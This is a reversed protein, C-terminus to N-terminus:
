PQAEWTSNGPKHAEKVRVGQWHRGHRNDKGQRMGATEMKDRFESQRAPLLGQGKAFERWASFM